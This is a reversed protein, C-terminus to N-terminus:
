FCKLNFVHMSLYTLVLHSLYLSYFPILFFPLIFFRVLAHGEKDGIHSWWPIYYTCQMTCIMNKSPRFYLLYFYRQSIHMIDKWHTQQSHSTLYSTCSIWTEHNKKFLKSVGIKHSLFDSELSLFYIKFFDIKFNKISIKINWDNYM